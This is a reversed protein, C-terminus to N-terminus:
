IGRRYYWIRSVYHGVEAVVLAFVALAIALPLDLRLADIYGLLSALGAHGILIVLAGVLLYYGNRASKAAILRDREDVQPERKCWITMSAQFAVEIAVIIVVMALGLEAMEAVGLPTGDAWAGFVRSFFYTAAGITLILSSWITSEFQSTPTM